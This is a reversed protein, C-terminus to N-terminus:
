SPLDRSLYDETPGDRAQTGVPTLFWADGDAPYGPEPCIYGARELLQWAVAWRRREPLAARGTGGLELLANRRSVSHDDVFYERLLRAALQKTGPVRSVSM